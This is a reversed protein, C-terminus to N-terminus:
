MERLQTLRINNGSPDRFGCDRGYPQDTPKENFEVGRASLEAYAADCDDTTLFVTGAAGKATLERVQGQTEADLVPPGPIAMLVIAVDEQGAPGVTLWRFDGMEPLTVDSRVEMGVNKTYFALAEEQDHVWLQATAIRIM